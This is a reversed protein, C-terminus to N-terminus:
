IVGSFYILAAGPLGLVASFASNCFTVALGPSILKVLLLGGIGLVSNILAYRKPRKTKVYIETMILGVAALIVIETM